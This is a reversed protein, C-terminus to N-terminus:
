QTQYNSDIFSDIAFPLALRVKLLGVKEGKSVLYNVTEEVAEAGSGM